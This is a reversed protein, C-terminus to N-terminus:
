ICGPGERRPSPGYRTNLSARRIDPVISKQWPPLLAELFSGVDRILGHRGQFPLLFSPEAPPILNSFTLPRQREVLFHFRRSVFIASLSRSFHKRELRHRGLHRSLREETKKLSVREGLARGVETLRVSDRAQIGFIMEAVFRRAVKPLGTSLGGSFQVIQERLKQAIKAFYM